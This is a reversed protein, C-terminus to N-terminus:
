AAEKKKKTREVFEAVEWPTVQPLELVRFVDAITAALLDSAISTKTGKFYDAIRELEAHRCVNFQVTMNRDVSEYEPDELQALTGEWEQLLSRVAPGFTRIHEAQQITVGDEEGVDKTKPM